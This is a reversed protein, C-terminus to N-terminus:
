SIDALGMAFLTLNIRHIDALGRALYRAVVSARPDNPAESGVSTLLGPLSWAPLGLAVSLGLVESATPAAGQALSEITDLSLNSAAAIPAAGSGTTKLNETLLEFLSRVQTDPKSEFAPPMDPDIFDSKDGFITLWVTLSHGTALFTSIAGIAEAAALARPYGFIGASILPFAISKCANKKALNLSNQYCSKLLKPEGRRGGEWIPGVTHIIYKAYLAFGSTIVAEGTPCGGLAQCAEALERPGAARFIAGCVGGGQALRNNAANVVADVDM